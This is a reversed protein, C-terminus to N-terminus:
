QTGQRELIKCIPLQEREDIKTRIKNEIGALLSDLETLYTQIWTEMKFEGKETFNNLINKDEEFHKKYTEQISKLRESANNFADKLNNIQNAFNNHEEIKTNIESNIRTFETKLSGLINVSQIVDAQKIKQLNSQVDNIINKLKNELDNNSLLNQVNTLQKSFDAVTADINENIQRINEAFSDIFAQNNQLDTEKAKLDTIKKQKNQLEVHKTELTERRKELAQNEEIYDNMTKIDTDLGSVVGVNNKIKEQMATTFNAINRKHSEAINVLEASIDRFAIADFDASFEAKLLNLIEQLRNM